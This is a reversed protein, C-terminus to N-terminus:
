FQFRLGLQAQFPTTRLTSALIYNGNADKVQGFNVNTSPVSLDNGYTTQTTEVNDADFVNFLEVFASLNKESRLTFNKQLRLSVDSFGM